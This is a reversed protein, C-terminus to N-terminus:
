KLADKVYTQKEIDYQEFKELWRKIGGLLVLANDLTAEKGIPNRLIDMILPGAEDAMDGRMVVTDDIGLARIVLPNADPSNISLTGVVDLTGYNTVRMDRSMSAIIKNKGTAMPGLHEPYYQHGQAKALDGFDDHYLYYYTNPMGLGNDITVFGPRTLRNYISRRNQGSAAVIHGVTVSTEPSVAGLRVLTGALDEIEPHSKVIGLKQLSAYSKIM